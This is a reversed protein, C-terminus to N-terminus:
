AAMGMGATAPQGGGKAMMQQQQAQQAAKAANDERVKRLEIVKKMDVILKAPVGLLEARHRTAEDMDYNDM